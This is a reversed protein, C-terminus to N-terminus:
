KYPPGSASSIAPMQKMRGAPSITVPISATTVYCSPRVANTSTSVHSMAATESMSKNRNRIFETQSIPAASITPSTM